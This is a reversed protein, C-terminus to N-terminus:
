KGISVDADPNLRRIERLVNEAPMTDMFATPITDTGFLEIMESRSDRAMWVGGAKYLKITHKM